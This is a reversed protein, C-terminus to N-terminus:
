GVEPWYRRHAECLRDVLAREAATPTPERVELHRGHEHLAVFVRRNLVLERTNRRAAHFNKTADPELVFDARVVGALSCEDTLALAAYGLEKARQVLEGPHSAGTLFSFNSRCHLEAYEPLEM